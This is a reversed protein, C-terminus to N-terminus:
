AVVGMLRSIEDVVEDAGDRVMREPLNAYARCFMSADCVRAIWGGNYFAQLSIRGGIGLLEVQDVMGPGEVANDFLLLPVRAQVAESITGYGAKAVVLDCAAVYDQTECDDGPIKPVSSGDRRASTLLRIGHRSAEDDHLPGAGAAGAAAAGAPDLPPRSEFYLRDFAPSLEHLVADVMARIARLPHDQPVRQEPMIYSFVGPQGPDDGRM